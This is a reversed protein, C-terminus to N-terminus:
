EEFVKNFQNNYVEEESRIDGNIYMNIYGREFWIFGDIPNGSADVGEFRTWDEETDLKFEFDRKGEAYEAYEEKYVEYYKGYVYRDDIATIEVFKEGIKIFSDHKEIVIDSKWKGLYKGSIYANPDSKVVDKEVEKGTLDPKTVFTSNINYIKMVAEFTLKHEVGNEDKGSLVFSAFLNDIIGDNNVGANGSVTNIFVDDKLNPIFEDDGLNSGSVAQKFFFSTVANILAPIQADSITGSFEKTGDNNEKVIVHHKLNGILADFIKEIDEAEEEEFPNNFDSIDKVDRENEYEYLYYTDKDSDKRISCKTDEYYYYSEKKGNGYEDTSINERKGNVMDVKAIVANSMILTDNDKISLAVESTYSDYDGSLKECTYKIADKFQDYGEKSFVDAFATSMFLAAGLCFSLLITLRKKTKM